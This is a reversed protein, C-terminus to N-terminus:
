NLKIKASNWRSIVAFDLLLTIILVAGALPFALGTVLMILAGGKWLGAQVPLPPAVLTKADKPRRKYWVVIGSVTLFIIALTFAVNLLANWLGLDGQHLAIGVAMAKGILSYDAYGVDVLVKGTYRDVHV